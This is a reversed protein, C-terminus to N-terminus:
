LRPLINRDELVSVQPRSHSPAPGDAHTGWPQQVAGAATLTLLWRPRRRQLRTLPSLGCGSGSLGTRDQLPARLRSVLSDGLVVKLYFTCFHWRSHFYFIRKQKVFTVTKLHMFYFNLFLELPGGCVIWFNSSHSSISGWSNTEEKAVSVACPQSIVGAARGLGEKDKRTPAHPGIGEHCSAAKLLQDFYKDQKVGFLPQTIFNACPKLCVFQARTHRALCRKGWVLVCKPHNWHLFLTGLSLLRVCLPSLQSSWKSNKLCYVSSEYLYKQM